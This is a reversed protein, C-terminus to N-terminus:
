GLLATYAVVSYTVSNADNPTITVQLERFLPTNIVETFGTPSAITPMPWFVYMFTGSASNIAAAATWITKNAVYGTQGMVLSPTLTTAAARATVDVVLLVACNNYLTLNASTAVTRAASTLLTTKDNSRPRDYNTGNFLMGLMAVINAANGDSRFQSVINAGSADAISNTSLPTVIQIGRDNFYADVRDGSAVVSPISTTAKGGIKIPNGSDVGDHAVNGTVFLSAILTTINQAIRQLRGNLGSSATDNAPATETLSGLATIQTDQKAFTALASTDVSVSADVALKNTSSIPLGNPGYIIVRTTDQTTEPM